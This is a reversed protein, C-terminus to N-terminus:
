STSEFFFTSVNASSVADVNFPLVLLKPQVLTERKCIFIEESSVNNVGSCQLHMLINALQTLFLGCEDKSNTNVRSCFSDVTEVCEENWVTIHASFLM